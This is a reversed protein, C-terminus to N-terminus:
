RRVGRAALLRDYLAITDAVYRAAGFREAAWARGAAGLTERRSPDALLEAVAVTLADMDDRPVLLGTRGDAFVDAAGGAAFSVVPRGAAQAEILSLPSGENASCLVLVDLARYVAALDQRFGAFVIRHAAPGRAAREVLAAREDGDGVFVFRADPWQPALREALEIFLHPQKVPVLRAVFGISPTDPGMGWARRLVDGDDTAALLDALDLGPYIVEIRSRPAIRQAELDRAVHESVSVVSDTLASLGRETARVAASVPRSFYGDFVHGHFTHVVVPVGCLRAALRGLTGAKATHTHVVHPRVRRILRVIQALAAADRGPHVSRRLAPLLTVDIGRAHAEDLLDGEAGEAVGSGIAAAFGAAELGEHALFLLRAPGGVNLRAILQLVRLPERM